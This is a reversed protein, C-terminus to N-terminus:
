SKRNHSLAAIYNLIIKSTITKGASSNGLVLITQHPFSQSDLSRMMTCFAAEEVHFVHPPLKSHNNLYCHMVKNSYLRSLDQFPNLALLIPGTNTYIANSTYQEKLAAVVAPEHLHTLEILDNCDTKDNAMLVEKLMEEPLTIVKGFFASSCETIRVSNV